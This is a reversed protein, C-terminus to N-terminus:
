PHFLPSLLIIVSRWAIEDVTSRSRCVAFVSQPTHPVPPPRPSCQPNASHASRLMRVRGAVIEYAPWAFACMAGDLVNALFVTKMAEKTGTKM